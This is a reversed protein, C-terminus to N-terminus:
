KSARKSEIQHAMKDHNQIVSLTEQAFRKLKPDSLNKAADAFKQTDEDHDKVMNQMYERDFETGKLSALKDLLQQHKQDLQQPVNGGEATVIQKLQDGAASHDKVMRQGFGRVEGNSSKEALKGAEVEFKGGIAAENVFKQDTASFQTSNPAHMSAPPQTLTNGQAFAAASALLAIAFSSTAFKLSM